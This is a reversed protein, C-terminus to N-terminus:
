KKEGLIFNLQAEACLGNDTYAEAYMKTIKGARLVDIAIKLTDGPLVQKRFKAFDISMLFSVKGKFTPSQMIAAGGAQAMIELILVGPVVPYSPFHGKFFSEEGTFKRIGVLYKDEKIVRTEDVLLFPERHPLYKKIEEGKITKVVPENFLFELKGM